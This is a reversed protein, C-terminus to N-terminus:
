FSFRVGLKIRRPWSVGSVTQWLPSKTFSGNAEIYGHFSSSVSVRAVNLANYIDVYFSLRGFDGTKFEKDVRLDLRNASPTRRTGPAETYVGVYSAFGPVFIGINRGFPAGSSHIFYGSLGIGYPLLYTAQLKIVLPRDLDLRGERNILYNPTNFAGGVIQAQSYSSGITGWLKSYVISGKLQWGKSMRKELILELARYKRFAGSPNTLITTELPRTRDWVTISKDDATNFVGDYGPDLATLSTAWNLDSNNEVDEWINVNDKHIYSLSLKFNPLVEHDLGIIFENTFPAKIAPDIRDKPNKTNDRGIQAQLLYSDTPDRLGNRNLDFWAYQQASYDNPNVRGMMFSLYDRYRSYSVKAATKGNGFLDIVLGLRPSFDNLVILDKVEAYDTRGFFVPDLWLWEPVEPSDQAPLWLRSSDFRLGLNLTIRDKLFSWQDHAYFNLNSGEFKFGGDSRDKAFGWAVFVGIYNGYYYPSDGWSYTHIPEPMWANRYSKNKEYEGGIKLEHSGGLLNDAFLTLAGSAILRARHYYEPYRWAGTRVGTGRDTNQHTAGPQNLYDGNSDIWMGRLDLFANPSLIWNMQVNLNNVTFDEIATSEVTVTRADMYPNLFYPANSHRYNYYGMWKINKTMQYTLKGMGYEATSTYDKPFNIVSAAYSYYRGAAFFWLKDKIIRGGVGLSFDRLEKDSGAAAVKLADLQERSFNSDVFSKTFYVATADGHLTNGGSRSVINVYAGSVSGVDAPHAGLEIEIEEIMNFDITTMSSGVEPNTINLGDLAYMNGTAVSGHVSSYSSSFTDTIAGPISNIISYMSRNMPLSQLLEKTYTVAIKSSKIDVVPSTAIITVEEEITSQEMGITITTTKGVSIILGEQTLKKFGPMVCTIAYIGPPLSPSRFSGTQTSVFDKTGMLAPSSVTVAVGPLTENNSKDVIKGALSGTQRQALAGSIMSLSVLFIFLVLRVNKKM